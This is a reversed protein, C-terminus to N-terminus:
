VYPTSHPFPPESEVLTMTEPRARSLEFPFWCFFLGFEVSATPVQCPRGHIMLTHKCPQFTSARVGEQSRRYVYHEQLRESEWREAPGPHGLGPSLLTEYPVSRGRPLFTQARDLLQRTREQWPPWAPLQAAPPVWGEQGKGGRRRRNGKGKGRGKKGGGEDVEM